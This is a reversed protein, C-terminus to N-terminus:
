FSVGLVRLISPEFISFLQNKRNSFNKNKFTNGFNRNSTTASIKPLMIPVERGWFTRLRPKMVNWLINTSNCIELTLGFIAYNMSKDDIKMLFGHQPIFLYKYSRPSTGDSKKTQWPAKSWILPSRVMCINRVPCVGKGVLILFRLHRNQRFNSFFIWNKFNNGFNIVSLTASIKPLMIPVEVGSFDQFATTALKM